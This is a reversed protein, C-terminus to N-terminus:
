RKRLGWERVMKVKKQRSRFLNRRVFKHLARVQKSIHDIM